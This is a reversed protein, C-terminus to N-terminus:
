MRVHCFGDIFAPAIPGALYFLPLVGRLETNGLSRFYPIEYGTEM